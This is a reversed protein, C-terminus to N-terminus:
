EENCQPCSINVSVNKNRDGCCHVYGSRIAHEIIINAHKMVWENLDDEYVARKAALARCAAYYKSSAEYAIAEQETDFETGDFCRHKQILTPM